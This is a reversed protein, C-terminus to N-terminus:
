PVRRSPNVGPDFTPSVPAPWQHTENTLGDYIM